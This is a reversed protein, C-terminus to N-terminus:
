AAKNECSRAIACIANIESTSFNEDNWREPLKKYGAEKLARRCDDGIQEDSLLLMTEQFDCARKRGLVNELNSNKTPVSYQIAKAEQLILSFIESQEGKPSYGCSELKDMAQRRDHRDDLWGKIWNNDYRATHNQEINYLDRIAASVQTVEHSIPWGLDGPNLSDAFQEAALRKSSADRQDESVVLDLEAETLSHYAEEIREDRRTPRDQHIELSDSTLAGEEDDCYEKALTQFRQKETIVAMKARKISEDEDEMTVEMFEQGALTDWPSESKEYQNSNPFDLLLESM